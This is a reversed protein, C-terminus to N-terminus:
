EDEVEKKVPYASDAELQFLLEAQSQLFWKKREAKM